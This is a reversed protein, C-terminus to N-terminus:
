GFARRARDRRRRVARAGDPFVAEVGAVLARMMGFRLVQTGGANTSALGGITCSGRAGITLPFRLGEEAVASHLTELVVGAEAVALRSAPDIRRISNMRRLSLILASGDAPPTAGAVMGTNGGQPVLPVRHRTALGVIAAVESTSKPALIARADGHVRGRWDGLWPEIAAPETSLGKDGLIPAAEDLLAAIADMSAPM